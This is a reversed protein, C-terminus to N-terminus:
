FCLAVSKKCGTQKTKSRNLVPFASLRVRLKRLSSGANFLNVAESVNLL